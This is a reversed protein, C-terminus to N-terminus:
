FKQDIVADVIMSDSIFQEFSIDKTYFLIKEGCEVIDGILLTPNRKSM